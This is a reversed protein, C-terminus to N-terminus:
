ELEDLIFVESIMRNQIEQKLDLLSKSQFDEGFSHIANYFWQWEM